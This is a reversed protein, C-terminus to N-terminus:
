AAEPNAVFTVLGDQAVRWARIPNFHFDAGMGRAAQFAAYTPQIYGTEDVARSMLTTPAGDWRWPFVFRTAAKPSEAGFLEAAAWSSGGDTSVEVKTIRGRGTWALGSITWMGPSLQMPHAPSTIISKTDMVFSFQRALDGPLADTYRVTEDKAMAPAEVAEIRRLWKISINAEWGPVVLRVPYGHAPRLAEGNSAFAILCDDLAKEIPLSRMLVSADGGEVLLWRAQPKLGVEALLQGLPVGTWEVNSLQGDIFQPTLEPKPERYAKRGNGACELFHARTVHPFRKLEALTFTLPREVLGHLLLKYRAPDIQAIGGHHRQFQVDTPTITGTFDQLPSFATGSVHGTPSVAPSEFPSRESRPTVGGGLVRTADDPVTPLAVAPPDGALAARGAAVAGVVGAALGLLGRRSTEHGGSM